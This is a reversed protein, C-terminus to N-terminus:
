EHVIGHYILWEVNEQYEKEGWSKNNWLNFLPTTVDGSIDETFKWGKCNTM